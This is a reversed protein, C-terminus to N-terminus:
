FSHSDPQQQSIIGNIWGLSALTIWTHSLGYSMLPLPIGVIPLIGTVMGTNIVIALMIPALLGIALLQAFFSTLVMIGILLRLVLIAYLTLILLAGVLGWEECLVSFIFDTRSEPLFALQTQTGKFLGKGFLGGSGIAIMSQEIQYREKKADGAGLFVDIRKRQYPKLNSYLLPASIGILLATLVFFKRGIGAIWLMIAGSLAIIVATGLDPQKLVLLFSFGLILLITWFYSFKFRGSEEETYLYYTIFAPLFLKALESPQFKFLGLNIWRQAGMGMSGKVITFLLLGLTAFYVFYGLRCLSYYNRFYFFCYIVFGSILGFVQKKFFISYYLTTNQTSSFIFLLGVLSIILTILTNPWTTRSHVRASIIVIVVGYAKKYYM